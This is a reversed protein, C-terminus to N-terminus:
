YFSAVKGDPAVNMYRLVDETVKAFVPAAVKEGWVVGKPDDIVVLIVLRPKTLPAIGVFSSIYHGKWYGRGGLRVKQATGTKGGVKFGSVKAFKGTGYEVVNGMMERLLLATKKSIPRGWELTPFTKVYKGDISEIKKILRPKLLVGDNAIACVASALQLPTVAIAQGFSIMAIDPKAWDAIERVIGRTEGPMSVGTYEGFGFAKIYKIFKEPGLKIGIQAVGTNISYALIDEILADKSELKIHHSNRIRKGGVVISDPCFIRTKKDVIGEELAGALTILKFTSGPEYVDSTGRCHWSKKPYKLYNNPDFDPKSVLALIDGNLTDMVVITGSIAQSKKLALSLERECIYQIVEDISLTVNMGSKAEQIERAKASIIERGRPDSETIYKGERGKLYEELGFEIGSLGQNDIGVFGLIQSALTGKPYIRKKEALVNVGKLNSNKIKKAKWINVKREVWVFPKDEYTKNLIQYYSEGLIKSLKEATEEKKLIERPVLYVSYSDISTALLNGRRDFIDGRDAALTIVRRRQEESRSLYFDHRIIQLHFLRIAIFVFVLFFLLLLIWLRNKYDRM